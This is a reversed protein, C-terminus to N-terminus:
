FHGAVMVKSSCGPGMVKIQGSLLLKPDHFQLCGVDIGGSLHAQRWLLTIVVVCLKGVDPVTQVVHAVFTRAM